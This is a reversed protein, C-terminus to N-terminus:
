NSEPERFTSISDKIKALHDDFDPGKKQAVGVALCDIVLLHTIRSTMPTFVDTDENIHVHIPLDALNSVPTNPPSLSIVHAGQQKAISMAHLLDKTRGSQSIAVVVDNKQLTVASMSQMHPDSYAVSSFQLRFFKHMADMAVAGSAGFGYFEVRKSKTLAEVAKAIQLEDLYNRVKMIQTVSTDFIKKVIDSSSDTATIAFQGIGHISTHSQALLVKFAQFGNLGLARCFRVVTPESVQAEQALDVIRMHIVADMNELVYHAVKVESKRMDPVAKRIQSIFSSQNPM